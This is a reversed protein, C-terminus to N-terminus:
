LKLVLQEPKLTKFSARKFDRLRYADEVLRSKMVTAYSKIEQKTEAIFFGHPRQVSAAVPLGDAILERIVKRIQRDNKLGLKNALFQGPLARAHGLHLQARVTEKLEGNDM